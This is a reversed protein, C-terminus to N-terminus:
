SSSTNEKGRQFMLFLLFFQLNFLCLVRGFVGSYFILLLMLFIFVSIGSVLTEWTLKYLNFDFHMTLNLSKLNKTAMPLM